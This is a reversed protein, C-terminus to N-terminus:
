KVCPIGGGSLDTLATPPPGSRGGGVASVATAPPPAPTTATSGPTASASAPLSFGNGLRVILSGAPTSARERIQLGGLFDALSQAAASDGPAYDVVSGTRRIGSSVLGSRYGKAVAADLVQRAQGAVGSENIVDVKRDPVPATTTASPTPTPPATPANGTTLIAHVTSRILPVDVFNVSQGIKDFGFRQVPLTFFHLNGGSIASAERALELPDLGADMATNQKAVNILGTVTAPNVLTNAQKMQHLLSAIFAQQRRSRDLDTFQLDPHVTDRRQRVFAMAQSANIEQLGAHFNAGSFTDQTNEKVCVEIPQVNQAIQYFAVMTVEVFHDIPVGGLFQQVTAIETKRGAERAPENAAHGTIGQKALKRQEQDFALGYAEKIKGKCEGDPCGVFDVYDDRPISIATARTGDGPIHVLMLVNTNLGGISADGTHLADYMAKPLPDGNEDLRSDLGMVLLNTDGHTSQKAGALAASRRIGSDLSHYQFAAYGALAVVLAAVGGLVWWRKRRSPRRRRSGRSSAQEVDPAGAAATGADGAVEGPQPSGESSSTGAAM